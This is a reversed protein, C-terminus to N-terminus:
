RFTIDHNPYYKRLPGKMLYEQISNAETFYGRDGDSSWVTGARNGNMVMVNDFACGGEGVQIINEEFCRCGECDDDCDDGDGNPCGLFYPIFSSNENETNFPEANYASVIEDLDITVPHSSVIMERSIKSLYLYFFDSIMDKVKELEEESYPSLLSPSDEKKFREKSAECYLSSTIRNEYWKRKRNEYFEKMLTYQRYWDMEAEM